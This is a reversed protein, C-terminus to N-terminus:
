GRLECDFLVDEGLLYRRHRPRLGQSLDQIPPLTIGPRGSGIILPAVTLQLRDLVGQELFASVTRGGGEIFIGCLGRDHLRRLIERPNLRGHNSPVGLIEADGPAPPAARAEACVLLTPAAHDQFVRHNAALRRCPDIVVRVPNPGAVRRTTLQPDDCEVTAAGVVIADCLARMRHLHTLNEPGNVYCSAGNETAIRGDLSQGLHAVTSPREPSALAMPLYPDLWEAGSEALPERASWSGDAGIEFLANPDDVPVVVPRRREDLALGLPAPATSRTRIHQRLALLLTWVLGPQIEPTSSSFRNSDIAIM